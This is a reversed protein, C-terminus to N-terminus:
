RTLWWAAGILAAEGIVVGAMVSRRAFFFRPSAPRSRAL